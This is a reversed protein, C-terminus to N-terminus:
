RLKMSSARETMFRPTASARCGRGHGEGGGLGALNRTGTKRSRFNKKQVVTQSRGLPYERFFAPSTEGPEDIQHDHLQQRRAATRLRDCKATRTRALRVLSVDWPGTQLAERRFDMDEQPTAADPDALRQLDKTLPTIRSARDFPPELHVSLADGNPPAAPVIREGILWVLRRGADSSAVGTITVPGLGANKVTFAIGFYGNQRYSLMIGRGDAWTGLGAGGAENGDVRVVVGNQVDAELARAAGCGRDTV